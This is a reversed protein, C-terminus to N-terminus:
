LFPDNRHPEVPQACGIELFKYLTTVGNGGEMERGGGLHPSKGGGIIM